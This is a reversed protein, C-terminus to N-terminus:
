LGLSSKILQAIAALVFLSLGAAGLMLFCAGAFSVIGGPLILLTLALHIWIGGPVKECWAEIGPRWYHMALFAVPSLSAVIVLGMMVPSTKWGEWDSRLMWICLFSGIVASAPISCYGAILCLRSSFRYWVSRKQAAGINGVRAGSYERRGGETQIGTRSLVGETAESSDSLHGVIERGDSSPIVLYSEPPWFKLVTMTGHPSQIEIQGRGDARVHTFYENGERDVAVPADGELRVSAPGNSESIIRTDGLIPDGNGSAMGVAIREVVAIWAAHVSNDLCGDAVGATINRVIGRIINRIIKSRSRVDSCIAAMLSGRIYLQDRIAPSACEIENRNLGGSKLERFLLKKFDRVRDLECSSGAATNALAADVVMAHFHGLTERSRCNKGEINLCALAYSCWGNVHPVNQAALHQLACDKRVFRDVLRERFYHAEHAETSDSRVVQFKMLDCLMEGTIEDPQTQM